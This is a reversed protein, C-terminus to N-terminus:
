GQAHPAVHRAAAVAPFVDFVMGVPTQQPSMVSPFM